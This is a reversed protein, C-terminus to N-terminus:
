KRNYLIVLVISSRKYCTSSNVSFRWLRYLLLNRFSPQARFFWLVRMIAFQQNKMCMIKSESWLEVKSKRWKIVYAPFQKKNWLITKQSNKNTTIMCEGIVRPSLSKTAFLYNECNVVDKRFSVQKQGDVKNHGLSWFASNHLLGRRNIAFEKTRSSRRRSSWNETQLIRKCGIHVVHLINLISYIM